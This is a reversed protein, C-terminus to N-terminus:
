AKSIIGNKLFFYLRRGRLRGFLHIQSTIQKIFDRWWLPLHERGRGHSISWFCPWGLLHLSSAWSITKQTYIPNKLLLVLTNYVLTNTDNLCIWIHIFCSAPRFIWRSIIVFALWKFYHRKQASSGLKYCRCLLTIHWHKRITSVTRVTCLVHQQCRFSISSQANRQFVFFSVCWFLGKEWWIESICQVLVRYQMDAHGARGASEVGIYYTKWAGFDMSIEGFLVGNKWQFKTFLQSRARHRRGPFALTTTDYVMKFFLIHAKCRAITRLQSTYLRSIGARWFRAIPVYNEGGSTLV